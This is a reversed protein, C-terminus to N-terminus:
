DQQQRQESGQQGPQQMCRSHRWVTETGEHCTAHEHHDERLHDLVDPHVDAQQRDRADRQWEDGVSARRGHGRECGQAQDLRHHNAARKQLM